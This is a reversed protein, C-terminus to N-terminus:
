ACFDIIWRQLALRGRDPPSTKMTFEVEAYSTLAHRLSSASFARAQQLFRKALWAQNPPMKLEAACIAAANPVHEDLLSRATLLQRIMRPILSGLAYLSTGQDLSRELLALSNACRKEALANTLEWTKIEVTSSIVAAVTQRNVTKDERSALYATVTGIATSLAGLDDGVLNILTDAVARDARLGREAFLAQVVEPLEKRSPAKRDLVQGKAAVAKYLRTNKNLKTGVLCLVTTESPEQAYAALEDLAVKAFKDIATVTVLRYPSAFPLTNAAAVIDVVEAQEADFTDSNFDLDATESLRKRLRDSAQRRLFPQESLILYLPKLETSAM